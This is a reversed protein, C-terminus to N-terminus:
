YDLPTLGAEGTVGPDAGHALLARATAASPCSGRVNALLPTRGWACACNPDIGWSLREAVRDADGRRAARYLLNEFRRRHEPDRAMSRSDDRRRITGAPTPAAT